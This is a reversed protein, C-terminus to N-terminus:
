VADAGLPAPAALRGGLGLAALGAVTVPLWLVLHVLLAFAAAEARGAGYATLGLMAFYDFTGVYGPSSPLLTAVTAAGLALWPALPPVHIHLSWAVSAFMAGELLWAAVSLAILKRALGPRRLLALSGALHGVGALAAAGWSRRRVLPALLAAAAREIREPYRTLAVLLLVGAVGAAGAAVIFARPFGAAAGALAVFLLALLVLLDLIREVVLTGLVYARPAGLAQRFGVVRLVDGARLPVTNNLALSGLFPRACRAFRLGPDAVRLMLWWRAIRATLDLALAVLGVLLPWPAAAALVGRVEAWDLRHAVLWVFLAAVALGVLARVARM